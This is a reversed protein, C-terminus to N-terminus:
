SEKIFDEWKDDSVDINNTSPDWGIGTQKLPWSFLQHQKCLWNFKGKLQKVTFRVGLLSFLKAEFEDRQIKRFTLTQMNGKKLEEHLLGIFTAKALPTWNAIEASGDRVM